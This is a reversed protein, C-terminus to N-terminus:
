QTPCNLCNVPRAHVEDPLGLLKTFSGGSDGVDDMQDGTGMMQMAGTIIAM